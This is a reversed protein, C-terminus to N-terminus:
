AKMKKGEMNRDDQYNKAEVLSLLPEASQGHNQLVVSAALQATLLQPGAPLTARGETRGETCGM